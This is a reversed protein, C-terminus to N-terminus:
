GGLHLLQGCPAGLLLLWARAGWLGLCGGLGGSGHPLCCVEASNGGRSCRLVAVHTCCAPPPAATTGPPWPPCSATSLPMTAQHHEGREGGRGEWATDGWGRRSASNPTWPVLLLQAMCAVLLLLLSPLVLLAPQGEPQQAPGRGRSVCCSHRAPPHTHTGPHYCRRPVEQGQAASSGPLLRLPPLIGHPQTLGAPAAIPQPVVCRPALLLM